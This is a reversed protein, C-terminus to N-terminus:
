LILNLFCLSLCPPGCLAPLICITKKRTRFLGAMAPFEIKNQTVLESTILTIDGKLGAMGQPHDHRLHLGPIDQAAKNVLDTTNLVGNDRM